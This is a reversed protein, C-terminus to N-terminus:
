PDPLPIPLSCARRRLGHLMSRVAMDLVARALPAAVTNGRALQLAVTWTLRSGGPTEAVAYDEAFRRLGPVSVATASFTKRRTDTWRFFREQITILGGLTVERVAGVGRRPTGAWRTGTVLPSWSVVADDATLLDWLEKVGIGLDLTRRTRIATTALFDDDAHDLPFWRRPGSRAPRAPHLKM